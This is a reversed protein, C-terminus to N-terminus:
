QQGDPFQKFLKGIMRHIAAAIQKQDRGSDILQGVEVDWLVEKQTADFVTLRLSMRDVTVKADPEVQHRQLEGSDDRRWVWGPEPQSVDAYQEPIFRLLYNLALDSSEGHSRREVGRSEMGEAVARRVAMDQVVLDAAHKNVDDLPPWSWRYSGYGTLDNASGGVRNVTISSCAVLLSLASLVLFLRLSM